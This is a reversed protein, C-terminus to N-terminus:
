RAPVLLEVERRPHAARTPSRPRPASRPDAGLRRGLHGVADPLPRERDISRGRTSSTRSTPTSRSGTRTRRRVPLDERHAPRPHSEATSGATAALSSSRSAGARRRTTSTRPQHLAPLAHLDHRQPLPLLREPRGRDEPDAVDRLAEGRAAPRLAAQRLQQRAINTPTEWLSDHGYTNSGSNDLYGRTQSWVYSVRGQWRNSFRKDLVVMLGKYKRETQAAGLLQGDRTSTSSARRPQHPARQGRLRRPEDVHLRAGAQRSLPITRRRPTLTKQEWRADPWCRARSTRTRAGSAPSRSASTTPSRATSARGDVRRGAPAEHRPRGRLAPYLSRDSETFCNGLPGCFSGSPDYAYTVYTASARCRRPLVARLLDGEYYQGYHGKLVTKGDGTLDYAFGIRPRGTRTATSGEQRARPQQRPRLRRPRRRQDHAADTPKWSDQAYLSERQNRGETDYCYSYALYQGKPYYETFDYYYIGQNYGYRNRVKSREIEVGFKLDHKGFGEAYHSVSANVQNRRATTTTSTRRAAPTPAPRRRRVLAAREAEPRPLLLGVLRTYKVEAFTSSSFLHRWQLDWIAEPSDQNLPRTTPRSCTSGVRRAAPRTTTTGSSARARPQREAGAALDAQHQLAPEGRHAARAPREPQRAARLAAREPLLLAQGQRAPGCLQGTLDLRKDIM